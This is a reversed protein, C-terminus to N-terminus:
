AYSTYHSSQYIKVGAVMTPKMLRAHACSSVKISEGYQVKVKMPEGCFNGPSPVCEGSMFETEKAMARIERVEIMKGIVKVCEYFDINTQDYGWSARFIDGVKINHPANREAKWKAKIKVSEVIGNIWDTVYKTRRDENAFSYNFTPKQSKGRFGMACPNGKSNKFAYVISNDAKIIIRQADAPLDSTFFERTIISRRM